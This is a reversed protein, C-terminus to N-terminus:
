PDKRDLADKAVRVEKAVLYYVVGKRDANRIQVPLGFHDQALWVDTSENGYRARVHLTRWTMGFPLELDEIGITEFRYMELGRATTVPMEGPEAAGPYGLQYFFSLMDQTKEPLGIVHVGGRVTLKRATWDMDARFETMKVEQREIFSDPQLGAETITGTSIWTKKDPKFWPILAVGTPEHVATIKYRNDDGVEWQHTSRGMEFRQEGMFAGFVIRGARPWRTAAVKETTPPTPSPQSEPKDEVKATEPEPPPAERTPPEPLQTQPLEQPPAERPVPKQKKPKPQTPPPPAAGPALDPATRVLRAELRMLDPEPALDIRHGFIALLHVLFSAALAWLMRREAIGPRLTV